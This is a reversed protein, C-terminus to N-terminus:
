VCFSAQMGFLFAAACVSFAISLTLSLSLLFCIANSCTRMPEEANGMKRVVKHRIVHIIRSKPKIDKYNINKADADRSAHKTHALYMSVCMDRFGKGWFM